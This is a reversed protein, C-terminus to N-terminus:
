VDAHYQTAHHILCPAKGHLARHVGIGGHGRRRDHGRWARNLPATRQCDRGQHEARDIKHDHATIGQQEVQRRQRSEGEAKLSELRKQRVQLTKTSVGSGTAGKKLPLSGCERWLLGDKLTYHEYDSGGLFGRAAFIDLDVKALQKPPTKSPQEVFCGTLSVSVFLISLNLIYKNM